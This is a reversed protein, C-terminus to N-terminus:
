NRIPQEIVFDAFDRMGHVPLDRAVSYHLHLITTHLYIPCLKTVKRVKDYISYDSFYILVRQTQNTLVTSITLLSAPGYLLMEPSILIYLAVMEWLYLPGNTLLRGLLSHVVYYSDM